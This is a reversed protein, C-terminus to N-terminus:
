DAPSFLDSLTDAAGLLSQLDGGLIDSYLTSGSGMLLDGILRDFDDLGKGTKLRDRIYHIRTLPYAALDALQM